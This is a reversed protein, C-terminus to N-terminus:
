RGRKKGMVMERMMIVTFSSFVHSFLRRCLCLRFFICYFLSLRENIKWCKNTSRAKLRKDPEQVNWHSREKECHRAFLAAMHGKIITLCPKEAPLDSFSQVTHMLNCIEVLAQDFLQPTINNLRIEHIIKRKTDNVINIEMRANDEIFGKFIDIAQQYLEPKLQKKGAPPGPLPAAPEKAAATLPAEAASPTTAPVPALTSAPTFSVANDTDEMPVALEGDAGKSFLDPDVASMRSIRQGSEAVNFGTGDRGLSSTARVSEKPLCQNRWKIVQRAFLPNEVSLDRVTFEKFREFGKDDRILVQALEKNITAGPLITETKVAREAQRLHWRDILPLLFM